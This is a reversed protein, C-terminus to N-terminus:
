WMLSAADKHMPHAMGLLPQNFTGDWEANRSFAGIKSPLNHTTMINFTDLHGPQATAWQLGPALKNESTPVRVMSVADRAM